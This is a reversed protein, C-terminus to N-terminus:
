FGLHLRSNICENVILVSDLIQLPTNAKKNFCVHFFPYLLVLQSLQLNMEQIM